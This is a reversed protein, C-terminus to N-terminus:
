HTHSLDERSQSLNLSCSCSQQFNRFLKNFFWGGSSEVPCQIGGVTMQVMRSTCIEMGMWGNALWLFREETMDDPKFVPHLDIPFSIRIKRFALSTIALSILMFQLYALFLLLASFLVVGLPSYRAPLLDFRESRCRRGPQKGKKGSAKGSPEEAPVLTVATALLKRRGCLEKLKLCVCLLPWLLTFLLIVVWVPALWDNRFQEVSFLILVM